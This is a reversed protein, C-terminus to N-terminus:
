ISPAAAPPLQQAPFGQMDIRVKRLTHPYKERIFNLLKERVLCRLDWATGADRASMIARLQVGDETVDTVHLAIATGSWLGSEEVVRKLEARIEEVPVAYDVVFFASGIIEATQYTWNQFPNEIFWNLPVIIRRLDWVRVVVYSLRIEEIRGFEGNIIVVDDLRIPQTWAVQIGAILNQLVPKAAFGVAIGAIGASALLSAGLQRVPPFIMLISAGAIIWIITTLTGRLVRVQTLIRRAALNDAQAVREKLGLLDEIVRSASALLWAGSAILLLAVGYRVVILVSATLPLAPSVVMVALTPLLLMAPRRSYQVLASDVVNPTRDTVRKLIGFIIRHAILGLIIAAATLVLLYLLEALGFTFPDGTEAAAAAIEDQPM